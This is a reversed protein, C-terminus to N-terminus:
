KYKAYLYIDKTVPTNFDFPETLSEDKYWWEFTSWFKMPDTYLMLKTWKAIQKSEYNHWWNTNFTVTYIDPNYVNKFCRVSYWDRRYYVSQDPNFGSKYIYLYIWPTSSYYYWYWYDENQYKSGLWDNRLWAWPILLDEIIMWPAISWELHTLWYNGLYRYLREPDNYWNKHNYDFWFNVLKSWEWISPVHWWEPCPWQRQSVTESINDYWRYNDSTDWEWWWLDNHYVNDSWYDKKSNYSTIFKNGYYWSHSYSDNWTALETTSEVEWTDAFGYNNWWQYFYWYSGEGTWPITAWLNRDMIIIWSYVNDPDPIVIENWTFNISQLQESMEVHNELTNVTTELALSLNNWEKVLNQVEEWKENDM